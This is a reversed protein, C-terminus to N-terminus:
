RLSIATLPHVEEAAATPAITQLLQGLAIPDAGLKAGDITRTLHIPSGNLEVQASVRPQIKPELFKSILVSPDFHQAQRLRDVQATMVWEAADCITTKGTGNAAFILTIPSRLDLSIHESLGRFAGVELARIRLPM